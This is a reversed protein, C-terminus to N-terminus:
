KNGPGEEAPYPISRTVVCVQLVHASKGSCPGLVPGGTAARSLAWPSWRARSLRRDQNPSDARGDRDKKRTRATTPPPKDHHCNAHLPCSKTDADEARTEVASPHIGKQMVGSVERACSRSHERSGRRAPRPMMSRAVHTHLHWRPKGATSPKSEAAHSAGRQSRSKNRRPQGIRLGAGAVYTAFSM